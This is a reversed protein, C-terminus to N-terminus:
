KGPNPAKRVMVFRDVDPMAAAGVTRDVMEWGLRDKGLITIITTATVSQGDSRTGSSKVIWQDGQRAMTGEAFGGNTDFVWTRFQKYAPDWGIRQTGSLAVQGAIRVDFSRVLFNGDSTRRCTTSVVADDSENVWDGVMWELELLRERAMPEPLPEDRVLAHLWKGDRKTYVVSYHITEPATGDKPKLTATGKEIASDVGLFRISEPKISIVGGPEDAFTTAFREQIAERGQIVSGDDGVIEADETFLAALAAADGANYSATFM